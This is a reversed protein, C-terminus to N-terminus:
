FIKDTLYFNTEFIDLASPPTPPYSFSCERVEPGPSEVILKKM